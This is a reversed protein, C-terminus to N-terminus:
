LYHVIMGDFLYTVSDDVIYSSYWAFSHVRQTLTNDIHNSLSALALGGETIWVIIIKNKFETMKNPAFAM